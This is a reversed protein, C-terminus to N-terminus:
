STAQAAAALVTADPVSYATPQWLPRGCTECLRNALAVTLGVSRVAGTCPGIPAAHSPKSRACHDVFRIEGNMGSLM